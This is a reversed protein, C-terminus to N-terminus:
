AELRVADLAYSNTAAPAVPGARAGPPRAGVQARVGVPAPWTDWIAKQAAALLESAARRTSRPPPTPIQGTSRAPVRLGPLHRPDKGEGGHRRVHGAAHHHGPRHPQQLRQGPHGLRGAPGAALDPHQRRARVAAAPRKVGIDRLMEVLAEMVSTDGAFEGSEWIIKLTCTRSASRSCCPRPGQAPDYAYTGTQVAGPLALPVVGEAQRVSDVLVDNVLSEGDIAYTLAERVRADALPHGSPKRFNYFLQYMRLRRHEEVAVGPLGALQEASDPTISDIVDLEGSRLAIVRSSEEPM